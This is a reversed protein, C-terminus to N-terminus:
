NVKRKEPQQHLDEPFKGIQVAENESPITHNSLTLACLQDPRNITKYVTFDSLALLSLM